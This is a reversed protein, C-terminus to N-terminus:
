GAVPENALRIALDTQARTQDIGAESQSQDKKRHLVVRQTLGGPNASRAGSALLLDLARRTVLVGGHCSIEVVDEGTYSNPARFYTVLVEDGKGARDHIEGFVVRRPVFKAPSLVGRFVRAFVSLAGRGSLRIVALAGEGIPTSIAAITDEFAM